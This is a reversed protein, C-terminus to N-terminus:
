FLLLLMLFDLFILYNSDFFCNLGLIQFLLLFLNINNCARTSLERAQKIKSRLLYDASVNYFKCLKILLSCPIERYENEYLSYQQQTINLYKAITIQKLDRDIRIEKLKMFVDGIVIKNCKFLHISM